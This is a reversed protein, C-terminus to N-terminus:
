KYNGYKKIIENLYWHRFSEGHVDGVGYQSGREGWDQAIRWEYKAASLPNINPKM